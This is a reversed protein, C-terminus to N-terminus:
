TINICEFTRKYRRMTRELTWIRILQPLVIVNALTGHTDAVVTATKMVMVVEVEVEVRVVTLKVRVVTSKM